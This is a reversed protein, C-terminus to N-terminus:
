HFESSTVPKLEDVTISVVESIPGTSFLVGTYRSWDRVRRVIQTDTVISGDTLKSKLTVTFATTEQNDSGVLIMVGPKGGPNYPVGPVSIGFVSVSLFTTGIRMERSFPLAAILTSCVM